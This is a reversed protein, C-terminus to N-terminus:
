QLTELLNNVFYSDALWGPKEPGAVYPRFDESFFEFWSDFLWRLEDGKAASHLYPIVVPIMSHVCEQLLRLRARRGFLM